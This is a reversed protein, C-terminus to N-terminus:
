RPFYLEGPTAQFTEGPRHDFEVVLVGDHDDERVIGPLCQGSGSWMEFRRGAYTAM